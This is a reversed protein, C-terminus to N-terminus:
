RGRRTQSRRSAAITDELDIQVPGAGIYERLARRVVQSLTEDRRRATSRAAALLAKPLRIAPLNADNTIDDM